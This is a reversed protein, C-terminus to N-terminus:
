FSDSFNIWIRYIIANNSSERLEGGKKRVNSQQVAITAVNQSCHGVGGGFSPLYLKREQLPFCLLRKM